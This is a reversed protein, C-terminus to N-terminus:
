PPPQRASLRPSVAAMLESYIERRVEQAVSERIERILQQLNDIRVEGVAGEEMEPAEGRSARGAAGDSAREEEDREETHTNPRPPPAPTISISARYVGQSQKSDGGGGHDGRVPSTSRPSPNTCSSHHDSSLESQLFLQERLLESVPEMARLASATSLSEVSYDRHLGRHQTRHTLEMLRDELQQELEQLEERVASRLSQLQELELRDAPSLHSYVPAQQRIIALELDMMQSRFLNLSRRKQQFEALSQHSPLVARPDSFSDPTDARNLSQVTGRIDHLVKRLQMETSSTSQGPGPGSAAPYPPGPHIHPGPSLASGLGPHFGLVSPPLGPHLAHEPAMTLHPNIHHPIPLYPNYGQYSLYPSAFQSGQPTVQYPPQNYPHNYGQHHMIPSGPHLHRHPSIAASPQHLNSMSDHPPGPSTTPQHLSTLSSHRNLSSNHQHFLNPLSSYPHLPSSYPLSPNLTFPYSPSSNFRPSPNPSPGPYQASAHSNPFTTEGPNLSQQNQNANMNQQLQGPQNSTFDPVSQTSWSHANVGQPWDPPAIPKPPFTAPPNKNFGSSSAPNIILTSLCNAQEEEEGEAEEEEEKDKKDEAEPTYKFSYKPQTCSVLGQGFQIRVSSVIRSPSLLSSPLSSSRQIPIIDRRRRGIKPTKMVESSQSATRNLTIQKARHLASLVPSPPAVPYLTESDELSVPEVQASASETPSDTEATTETPNRAHQPEEESDNQSGKSEPHTEQEATVMTQGPELEPETQDRREGDEEDLTEDQQRGTPRIRPLHHATYQPIQEPSEKNTHAKRSSNSGDSESASGSGAEEERGDPLDFAPQDMALPTTVEQSPHSTVTTESDCSDSSMQVKFNYNFDASPEEAFGSSDSQQSVTRSLDGSRSTRHPLAEDENSQIEEIDFSDANETRLKGLQPPVLTPPAKETTSTLTEGEKVVRTGEGETRRTTSQLDASEPRREPESSRQEPRNDTLCGTDGDGGAEEAVTALSCNDKKRVHKPSVMEAQSDSNTGSKDQETGTHADSATHGNTLTHQKPMQGEPSEAASQLLNFKSISRKLIKATNIKKKAPQTDNGGGGEGGEGQDKTSIRQIPQGSVQSYLQFLENAVTTLVEIQRFRSTLAYNPNELEMRQLQAALYVKIDIGRASSSSNFFRSPIKSSPDPEEQGFGLNLLIEEPDEEYLDLLESVSSVTSSKGSGTSNMSKGKEKYQSRKQDAALGFCSETKNNNCQLHNAEAGLSLDDEFSCGNRLPVRSPSASQDDLSAGLPSRCEDLWSAIKSNPVQGQEEAQRQTKGNSQSQQPEQPGFRHEPNSEKWLSERTQAWAQRRMRPDQGATAEVALTGSEM